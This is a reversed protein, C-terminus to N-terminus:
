HAALGSLRGSPGSDELGRRVASIRSAERELAGTPASPARLDRGLDPPFRLEAQKTAAGYSETCSFPGTAPPRPAAILLPM